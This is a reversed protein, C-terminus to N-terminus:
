DYYFIWYRALLLKTYSCVAPENIWFKNIMGFDMGLIIVQWLEYGIYRDREGGIIFIVDFLFYQSANIADYNVWLM